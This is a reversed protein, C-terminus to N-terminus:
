NNTHIYAVKGVAPRFIAIPFKREFESIMNETVNKSYMYYNLWDFTLENSRAEMEDSTMRCAMQLLEGPSIPHELVTETTHNGARRTQCFATSIYM